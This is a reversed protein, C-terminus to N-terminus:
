AVYTNQATLLKEELECERMQRQKRLAEGLVFAVMTQTYCVIDM